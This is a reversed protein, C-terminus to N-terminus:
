RSSMASRGDLFPGLVVRVHDESDLVADRRVSFSVIHAPEPDECVIGIVLAKPGALVRVVTRGTPPAGETPETQAFADTPEAMDWAPENLLGDILVSEPLVGVRLTPPQSQQAFSSSPM